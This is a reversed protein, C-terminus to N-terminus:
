AAESDSKVDLGERVPLRCSVMPKPAGAVEVICMRCNGPNGLAPHYCYHPIEIGVAQAADIVLAGEDAELERGNLKFKVRKAM